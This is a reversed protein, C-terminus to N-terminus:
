DPACVCVRAASPASFIYLFSFLLNHHIHTYVSLFYLSLLPAICVFLCVFLPSLM